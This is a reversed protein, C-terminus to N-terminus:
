TSWWPSNGLLKELDSSNDIELMLSIETLRLCKRSWSKHFWCSSSFFCSVVEISHHQQNWKFSPTPIYMNGIEHLCSIHNFSNVLFKPHRKTDLFPPSMHHIMQTKADKRLHILRTGWLVGLKKLLSKSADGPRKFAAGTPPFLSRRVSFFQGHHIELNIDLLHTPNGLM